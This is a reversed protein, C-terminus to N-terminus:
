DNMFNNYSEPSERLLTECLNVSIVSGYIRGGVRLLQHRPITTISEGGPNFNDCEKM